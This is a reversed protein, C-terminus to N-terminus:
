NGYQFFDRQVSSGRWAGTAGKQDIWSTGQTTTFQVGVGGEEGAWGKLARTGQACSTLDEKSILGRPHLRGNRVLVQSEVCVLERVLASDMQFM